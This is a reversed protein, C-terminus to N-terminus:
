PQPMRCQLSLRSEALIHGEMARAIENKHAGGKCNIRCDLAYITFFCVGSEGFTPGDYAANGVSNLGHRVRGFPDFKPPVGEELSTVDGEIAFLMWYTKSSESSDPGDCIVVFTVTGEPADSWQLPPSINEGDGSFRRPLVDGYAFASSRLEM